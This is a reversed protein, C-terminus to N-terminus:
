IEPNLIKRAWFYAVINFVAAISLMIQGPVETFLKATAEPDFGFYYLALIAAPALAMYQASKRAQATESKIKRELRQLERVSHAIREVTENLRGGSQRSADMAAAFLAFNESQLRQKAEVLCTELTKGMRYEGYIQQFEQCIPHPCQKALIETAQALSLGARIASSLSVMADALQDEIKERRQEAMRRLIYWPLCFLVVAMLLGIIPLGLGIWMLIGVGAVAGLWCVLLARLNGPRMRMRKLKDQFDSEVFAFARRGYDSGSWGAVAIAAGILICGLIAVEIM